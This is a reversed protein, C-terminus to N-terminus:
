LELLLKQSDELEYIIKKSAVTIFIYTERVLALKKVEQPM